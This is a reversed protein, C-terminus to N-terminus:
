PSAFIDKCIKIITAIGVAIGIYDKVRPVVPPSEPKDKKCEPERGRYRTDHPLIKKVEM